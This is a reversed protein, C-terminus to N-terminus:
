ILDAIHVVPQASELAWVKSATAAIGRLPSRTEIPLAHVRADAMPNLVFVGNLGGILKADECILHPVPGEPADLFTKAALTRQDVLMLRKEVSLWLANACVAM